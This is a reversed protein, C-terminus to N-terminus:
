CKSTGGPQLDGRARFPVSAVEVQVDPASDMERYIPRNLVVYAACARGRMRVACFESFLVTM